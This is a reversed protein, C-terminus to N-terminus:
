FQISNSFIRSKYLQNPKRQIYLIKLHKLYGLVPPIRSFDCDEIKINELSQPLDINVNSGRCQLLYLFKLTCNPDFEM